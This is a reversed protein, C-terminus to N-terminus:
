LSPLHDSSESYTIWSPKRPVLLIHHPDRVYVWLNRVAMQSNTDEASVLVLGVELQGNSFQKRRGQTNGVSYIVNKSASSLM